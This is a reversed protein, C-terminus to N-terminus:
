AGESKHAISAAIYHREPEGMSLIEEHGLWVLIKAVHGVARAAAMRALFSEGTSSTRATRARSSSVLSRIFANQVSVSSYAVLAALCASFATIRPSRSPM